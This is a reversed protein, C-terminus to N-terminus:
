NTLHALQAAGVIPGHNREQVIVALGTNALDKPAPVAFTEADGRWRGVVRREHVINHYNLTRGGNEGRGIQQQKHRHFRMLIVDAEVQRDLTGIAVEVRGDSRPAITVAVRRFDQGQHADIEKLVTKRRSGILDKSGQVIMQPTYNNQRNQARSYSTQLRTAWESSFPDVWGLRNWYDVHYALAIVGPQKALDGLFADAPPCSSCGQSTFLEVVVPKDAAEQAAM